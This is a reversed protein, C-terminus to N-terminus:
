ESPETMPPLDDLEPPTELPLHITFVVGPGSPAPAADLKGGHAEAIRRALTLGLGIGSVSSEVVGRTFPEFLQQANLHPPLGPGCDAVSLM